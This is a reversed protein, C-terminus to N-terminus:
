LDATRYTIFRSRAQCAGGGYLAKKADESGCSGITSLSPCACATVEDSAKYKKVVAAQVDRRCDQSIAKSCTGDDERMAAPYNDQDVRWDLVCLQWTPHMDTANPVKLEIRTGTFTANTGNMSMDAKTSVTLAWGPIPDLSSQTYPKSVDRGQLTYRGEADADKTLLKDFEEAKGSWPAVTGAGYTDQSSAASALYCILALQLFM